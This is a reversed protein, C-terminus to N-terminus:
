EVSLGQPVPERMLVVVVVVARRPAQQPLALLGEEAGALAVRLHVVALEV